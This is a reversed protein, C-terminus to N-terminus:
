ERQMTAGQVNVCVAFYIGVAAARGKFNSHATILSPTAMAM